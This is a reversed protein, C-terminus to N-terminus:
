GRPKVQATMRVPIANPAGIAVSLQEDLRVETITKITAVGNHVMGRGVPILQGSAASTRMVTLTAGDVSYLAELAEGNFQLSVSNSLSFPYATRIAVTPDGYCQYMFVHDTIEHFGEPWEAIMAMAGCRFVDGLRPFSTSSGFALTEPFLSDLCGELMAVNEPHRTTRTAAIIGMTSVNQWFLRQVFYYNKDNPDLLKQDILGSSCNMSFVFPLAPV